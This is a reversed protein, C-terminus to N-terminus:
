ESIQVLEHCHYWIEFIPRLGNTGASALGGKTGAAVAEAVKTDADEDLKDKTVVDWAVHCAEKSQLTTQNSNGSM